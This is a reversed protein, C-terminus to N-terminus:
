PVVVCKFMDLEQAGSGMAAHAWADMAAGQEVMFSALLEVLSSQNGTGFGQNIFNRAEGDM